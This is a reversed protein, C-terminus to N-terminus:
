FLAGSFFALVAASVLFISHKYNKYGFKVLEQQTTLRYPANKNWFIRDMKPDEKSPETIRSLSKLLSVRKM